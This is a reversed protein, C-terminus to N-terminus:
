EDDPKPFMSWMAAQGQFARIAQERAQEQSMGQNEFATLMGGAQIRALYVVLEVLDEHSLGAAHQKALAYERSAVLAGIAALPQGIRRQTENLDDSDL